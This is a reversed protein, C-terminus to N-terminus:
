WNCAAMKSEWSIWVDPLRQHLQTRNSLELFMPITTLIENSDHVCASIYTIDNRSGTFPRWRQNGVLGWTPCDRCSDLRTARGRFCLYGMATPIDNSDQICASRSLRIQLKSAVMKSKGSTADPLKVPLEMPIVTMSIPIATPIKKRDRRSTSIHRPYLGINSIYPELRPTEGMLLTRRFFLIVLVFTLSCSFSSRKHM